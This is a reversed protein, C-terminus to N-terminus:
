VHIREDVQVGARSVTVTGNPKPCLPESVGLYVYAGFVRLAQTLM